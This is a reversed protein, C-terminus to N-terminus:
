KKQVERKWQTVDSQFNNMLSRRTYAHTYSDIGFATAAAPIGLLPATAFQRSALTTVFATGYGTYVADAALAMDKNYKAFREADRVPMLKLLDKGAENANSAKWMSGFYVALGTAFPALSAAPIRSRLAIGALTIGAGIM